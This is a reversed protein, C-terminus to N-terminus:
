HQDTPLHITDFRLILAVLQHIAAGGGVRFSQKILGDLEGISEGEGPDDFGVARLVDGVMLAVVLLCEVFVELADFRELV